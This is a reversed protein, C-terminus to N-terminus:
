KYGVIINDICIAPNQGVSGDNRWTLVLRQTTNKYDTLDIIEKKWNTNNNLDGSVLYQSDPLVHAQPTVTAPMIYIRGYDYNVEGMGLWFLELQILEADPFNIDTYIHSIQTQNNTYQANVGNNSIYAGYTGQYKKDTGIIFQNNNDNVVTWKDFIGDEFDDFFLTQLIPNDQLDQWGYLTYVCIIQLDTNFIIDSISPSLAFMQSNTYEAIGLLNKFKSVQYTQM